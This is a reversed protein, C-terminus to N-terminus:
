HLLAQKPGTHTQLPLFSGSHVSLPSLSPVCTSTHVHTCKHTGVYTHIYTHTMDNHRRTGMYAQHWMEPTGMKQAIQGSLRFVLEM